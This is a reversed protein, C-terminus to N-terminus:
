IRNFWKENLCLQLRKRARSLCQWYDSKSLGMLDCIEQPQCDLFEKLSFVQAIKQPLNDICLDVIRLFDNNEVLSEPSEWDTSLVGKEWHGNETFLLSDMDEEQEVIVTTRQHYKLRLRDLIKYKLIGFAYASLHTIQSLEARKELLACCTDQVAEEAEEDPQIHMCAFRFMSKRLSDDLWDLNEHHHQQAM